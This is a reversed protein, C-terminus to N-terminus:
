SWSTEISCWLKILKRISNNGSLLFKWLGQVILKHSVCQDVFSSKSGRNLPFDFTVPRSPVKQSVIDTRSFVKNKMKFKESFHFSRNSSFYDIPCISLSHILHDILKSRPIICARRSYKWDSYCCVTGFPWKSWATWSISWPRHIWGAM